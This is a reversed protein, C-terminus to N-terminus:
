VDSSARLLRRLYDLDERLFEERDGARPAELCLPGDYGAKRLHGLQDRINLIGGSLSSVAVFQPPPVLLNKLHVYFLHDGASQIVESFAPAKPFLMLNAHDWLVGVHTSAIGRVLRLTAEVSDHLYLGHTEFAFRFGLDGALAGLRRFGAIAAEWQADTALASGHRSYDYVSQAPDPNRLDGTFTNVIRLPFRGAAKRFFKEAAEIEREHRAADEGMLDVGPAGFSIWELPHRDVARSVEDLYDLDSGPFGGPKRRFEIGDAGLEKTIKCARDLSQGQEFYNIHILVPIM